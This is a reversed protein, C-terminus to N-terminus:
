KRKLELEVMDNEEAEGSTIKATAFHENIISQIAIQGRHERRFNADGETLAGEYILEYVELNQGAKAGDQSGICIVVEDGTVTVVQGRMFLKHYMESHAMPAALGFALMLAIVKAMSRGLGLLGVGNRNIKAPKYNLGTVKNM